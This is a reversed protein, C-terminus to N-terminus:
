PSSPDVKLEEYDTGTSDLKLHLKKADADYYYGSRSMADLEASTDLLATKGMPITVSEGAGPVAGGWTAPDSWRQVDTAPLYLRSGPVVEKAVGPGSWLLKATARGSGEYYEMKIPYREGAQLSLSGSWERAPQKNWQDIVLEGNVWLRVGDSTYTYFTYTGTAPAEVQGSWRASFTDPAIRRSPFRKGWSFKIQQDTRSLKPDTLDKNNYYTDQIGHERHDSGRGRTGLSRPEDGAPDPYDGVFLDLLVQPEGHEGLTTQGASDCARWAPKSDRGKVVEAAGRSANCPTHCSVTPKGMHWM